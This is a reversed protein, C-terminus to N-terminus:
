GGVRGQRLDGKERGGSYHEYTWCLPSGRRMKAEPTKRSSKCLPEVTSTVTFYPKMMKYLLVRLRQSLAPWTSKSHGTRAPFCTKLLDTSRGLCIGGTPEVGRSSGFSLGHHCRVSASVERCPDYTTVAFAWVSSPREIVQRVAV